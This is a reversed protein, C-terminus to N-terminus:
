KKLAINIKEMAQYAAGSENSAIAKLLIALDEVCHNSLEKIEIGSMCRSKAASGVKVEKELMDTIAELSHYDLFKPGIVQNLKQIPLKSHRCDLEGALLQEQLGELTRGKVAPGFISQRMNRSVIALKSKLDVERKISHDELADQVLLILDLRTMKLVGVDKLTNERRAADVADQYNEYVNCQAIQYHGGQLSGAVHGGHTRHNGGIVIHTPKFSDPLHLQSPIVKYEKLQDDDQIVRVSRSKETPTEGETKGFDISDMVEQTRAICEEASFANGTGNIKVVILPQNASDFGGLISQLLGGDSTDLSVGGHPRGVNKVNLAIKKLNLQASKFMIYDQENTQVIKALAGFRFSELIVSAPYCLRHEILNILNLLPTTICVSDCNPIFIWYGSENEKDEAVDGYPSVVIM